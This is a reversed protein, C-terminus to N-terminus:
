IDQTPPEEICVEKEKECQDCRSEFSWHGRDDKTGHVVTELDHESCHWVCYPKRSVFDWGNVLLQMTM